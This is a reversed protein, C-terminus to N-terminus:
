DKKMIELTTKAVAIIWFITLAQIYVIVMASVIAWWPAELWYMIGGLLSVYFFTSCGSYDSEKAM